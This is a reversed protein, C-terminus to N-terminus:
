ELERVFLNCWQIPSGHHQLALRGRAPVGPLQADEIVTQGNLVVTLRDGRLTIHFRNWEGFPADAAMRPTVGARVADSLTSDTRYGFVEGSGISWGWINVQSKSSGRLYIGSDGDHPIADTLPKGDADTATRGDPLVHPQVGPKPEGTWRWDVRLEVDGFEAETWLTDGLGDYDLVHDRVTWHGAHVPEVVWGTLDKGNFLSRFGRAEDAVREAPLPPDNPPLERLRLNRFHVESGESELCLYGKAPSVESAGSVLAGNVELTLRGNQGTVRYHNWEPSPKARAESPLCRMWGAPHPRDPVLRAGWIAFLDGQSTYNETEVGDMIQVEVSRTFPVGVAPLPDSWVFLGANGGPTLHRYELELVFNEVMRESRLVCTPQGNCVIMGDRAVFTDPAGNVVVWGSLDRGNFLPTFDDDARAAACWAGLLGVVLLGLRLANVPADSM